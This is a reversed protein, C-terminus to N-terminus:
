GENITSRNIKTNTHSEKSIPKEPAKSIFTQRRRWFLHPLTICLVWYHALGEATSAIFLALLVGPFLIALAKRPHKFFYILSVIGLIAVGAMMVPAFQPALEPPVGMMIALNFVISPISGYFLFAAPYYRNYYPSIPNTDFWNVPPRGIQIVVLDRIMLIPNWILFLLMVIVAPLMGLTTQTLQKRRWQYILIFPIFIAGMQYSGALMLSYFGSRFGNDINLLALTLFMLPLSLFTVINTM